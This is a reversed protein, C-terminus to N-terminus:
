RFRFSYLKSANRVLSRAGLATHRPSVKSFNAYVSLFLNNKMIRM